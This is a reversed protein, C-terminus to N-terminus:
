RELSMSSKMSQAAVALVMTQPGQVSFLGARLQVLCELTEISITSMMLQLGYNVTVAAFLDV